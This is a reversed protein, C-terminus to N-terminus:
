LGQLTQPEPVSQSNPGYRDEWSISHLTSCCGVQNIYIIVPCVLGFTVENKITQAHTIQIIKCFIKM